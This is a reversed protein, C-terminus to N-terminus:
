QPPTPFIPNNIDCTEPFDRLQQRYAIWEQRKTESLNNDPLQTWDTEALLKDRQIRIANLLEEATPQPPASFVGNKYDWGEQIDERGTIDIFQIHDKCFKYKYLEDLNAEDEMIWHVKDYLIQAYKYM